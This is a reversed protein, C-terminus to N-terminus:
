VFGAMLLEIKEIKESETKVDIVDAFSGRFIVAIRDSITLVEKLDGSVLLVASNNRQEILIKWVNEISAVDLGLTPNEAILLKPNQSLERALILKQLNGGSLQRAPIRPLPPDVNYKDLLEKGEKYLMPVNYFFGTSLKRYRTLILNKALSMNPVIGRGVRDEPIYNLRHSIEIDGSEKPRLGVISEVLERQGNGAVGLIGFIEGKRVSFSVGKVAEQKGDGLVRLNRVKLIEEGTPIEKKDVQLIVERGVMMRALEKTALDGMKKIDDVHVTAMVKGRRLVTVYDTVELVEELKHTIFIVSCEEASLKRLTSFLKEIEISTLSATPEDLILIRVNRYLMKLIEVRQQEGVSLQRIQSKPNVEIGYKRSLERIEREKKPLKLFPTKCSGLIINESVSMKPILQFHQHVMGIGMNMADGPSRFEVKQDNIFIDGEDPRYLGSLIKMLTTKGAGNEGLLAHIEGTRLDFDIGNNAITQTFRKTIGKM